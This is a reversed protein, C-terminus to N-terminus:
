DYNSRPWPIHPNFYFFQFHTFCNYVPYGFLKPRRQHRYPAM